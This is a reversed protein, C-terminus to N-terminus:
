LAGQVRWGVSQVRCGAGEVRCGAGQVRCLAGQVICGAGQVRIGSNGCEPREPRRDGGQLVVDDAAHPVVVVDLLEGGHGHRSAVDCAPHAGQFTM